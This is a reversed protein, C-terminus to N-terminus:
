KDPPVRMIARFRNLADLKGMGQALHLVALVQGNGGVAWASRGDRSGVVPATGTEVWWM